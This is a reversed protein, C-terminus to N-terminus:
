TSDVMEVLELPLLHTRIELVVVFLVSLISGISVGNRILLDVFIQEM